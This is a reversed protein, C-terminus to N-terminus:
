QLNLHDVLLDFLFVVKGTTRGKNLQKIFL